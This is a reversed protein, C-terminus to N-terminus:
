QQPPAPLCVERTRPAAGSAGIFRDADADITGPLDACHGNEPVSQVVCLGAAPEVGTDAACFTGVRGDMDPCYGECPLSCFGARHCYAHVGNKDTFSCDADSTCHDGVFAPPKPTSGNLLPFTEVDDLGTFTYGADKLAVIISELHDATNRHIDHFLVIGGNYDKVQRLVAAQLDDRVDDDVYRFISRPCQGHGAAFCWDASDIHWGTIAFGRSRAMEATTCNSSGFPFRLYHPHIGLEGLVATTRDIESAAKTTSLTPLNLHAWTHNGVHFLPDAAVDQLIPRTADNVRMGNIFFTAPIQYKRLIAVVDPTTEANPGDDFTLAIKGGFKGRDPVRVGNCSQGDAKEVDKAQDAQEMLRTLDASDGDDEDAPADACAVAFLALPLPLLHRLSM